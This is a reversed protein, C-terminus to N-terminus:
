KRWHGKGQIKDLRGEAAAQNIQDPTMRALDDRTLQGQDQARSRTGQDADPVMPAPEPEPTEEPLDPVPSLLHSLAGQEKLDLIEEPSMGKLDERTVPKPKEPMFKAALQKAEQEDDALLSLARADSLTLGAARAIEAATQSDIAM